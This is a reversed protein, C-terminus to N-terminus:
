RGDRIKLVVYDIKAKEPVARKPQSMRAHAYFFSPRGVSSRVGSSRLARLGIRRCVQFLLWSPNVFPRM